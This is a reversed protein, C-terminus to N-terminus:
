LHPVISQNVARDTRTLLAITYGLETRQVTSPESGHLQKYYQKDQQFM